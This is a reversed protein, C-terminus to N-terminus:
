IERRNWYVGKKKENWEIYRRISDRESKKKQKRKEEKSIGFSKKKDVHRYRRINNRELAFEFTSM